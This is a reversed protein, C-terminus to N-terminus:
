QDIEANVRRTARENMWDVVEDRRWVTCRTSMKIPRPFAGQKVQSWIWSKKYPLLRELESVRLFVPESSSGLLPLLDRHSNM